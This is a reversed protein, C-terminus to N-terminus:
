GPLRCQLMLRSTPLLSHSFSAASSLLDPAVDEAPLGCAARMTARTFRGDGGGEACREIQQRFTAVSFDCLECLVITFLAGAAPQSTVFDKVDEMLFYGQTGQLSARSASHAM